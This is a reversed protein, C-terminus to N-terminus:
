PDPTPGVKYRIWDLSRLGIDLALKIGFYASSVFSRTGWLESIGISVSNSLIRLHAVVLLNAIFMALDLSIINQRELVTSFLIPIGQRREWPYLSHLLDCNQTNNEIGTQGPRSM